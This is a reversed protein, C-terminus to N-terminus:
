PLFFSLNLRFQRYAPCVMVFHYENEITNMNCCKCIRENRILNIFRGCEINLKLTSFRVNSLLKVNLGKRLYEEMVFNTKILKYFCLKETIELSLRWGQLFQYIINHVSLLTSLCVNYQSLSYTQKLEERADISM